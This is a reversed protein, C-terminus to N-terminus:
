PRHRALRALLDLVGRHARQGPLVQRALLMRRLGLLGPRALMVRLDLLALLDPQVM